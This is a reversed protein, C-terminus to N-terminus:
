PLCRIPNVRSRENFLPSDNKQVELHLHPQLNNNANGTKGVEGIKDETTVKDGVKPLDKPTTTGKTDESNTTNNLHAYFSFSSDPGSGHQIAVGWGYGSLFGSRTVTGNALPHVPSGVGDPSTIDIGKHPRDGNPSKRRAGFSGDTCGECKGNLTGDSGEVPNRRPGPIICPVDKDTEGDGGGDGTDGDVETTPPPAPPQAYGWGAKRIGGGPDSVVVSGDASVTGTGISVFMGLDHDFSFMDTVQGPPLGNVNPYSVRAPPDFKTGGPQITWVLRPLAGSIPAMPVKDAHVQTAMVKGVRSGDPLTVSSAFVTLSFGPIDKMTITVDQSGGAIRANDDDLPLLFIPMGVTNNRGPITNVAFELVPWTGPRTTTTGDVHLKLAGVPAGAIAFFGQADTRAQLATGEIAVTVGDLPTNTNDIINGSVQTDEPRGAVLGSAVLRIPQGLLGEFGADVVNNNIGPDSGLTVVAETRGDGDTPATASSAGNVAGGGSRVTFTVPVNAVPNGGADHVYVMLPQPLPQGVTGTQVDGMVVNIGAPPANLASAFFTPAGVFGVATATARQNGVGSRMGLQFLASARGSADTAVTIARGTLPGAILSGDGRAVSFTIMRGAIPNGGVDTLQAVLPQPLVTGIVGSQNDGALASIRQGAVDQLTVHATASSTNGARDQGVATLTNLGRHLPVGTVAFSRNSVLAARGNVTVSANDGNVTGVVVDNITGTVTITSGTVIAGEGPTDIVVTPPTTDRTVAITATGAAGARSTGVATIFNAGERLPVDAATFSGGSAIADVGNVVVSADPDDITGTVTLSTARTLTLNPPATITLVPPVGFTVNLGGNATNGAIDTVAVAIANLGQILTVSCSFAGGAFSAVIGNCSVMAIGSGTDGATGTVMLLSSNVTADPAPSTIALTPPTRDVHVTASAESSNGAVDLATGAVIRASTEGIVVRDGPCAAVGSRTDACQFSVTVDTNNWGAANPSPAVSAVILPPTQDINLTTSTSASNGAVDIVTGSVVQNAGETALNVPPPCIAVGSTADDCTFTVVVATRNWGNANPPPAQSASITPADNDIGAIEITFGSGPEGAIRVDLRNTAALAVPRELTAVHKNFASPGFVTVGNIAVTASTVKALAGDLGGNVLRITYTTRPNRVTFTDSATVPAGTGRSYTRAGFAVWSNAYTTAPALLLTLAVIAFVATRGLSPNHEM